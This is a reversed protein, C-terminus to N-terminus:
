IVADALSRRFEELKARISGDFQKGEVRLIMGGIVTPDIRHILSVKKGTLAALKQELAEEQRKQLPKATICVAEVIGNERYYLQKYAEVCGRLEYIAHKECLIKLFNLVIPEMERGEGSFVDDILSLKESTAVAPTDLLKAYAPYASFLAKLSQLTSFVADTSNEQKALTYLAKGYEECVIM